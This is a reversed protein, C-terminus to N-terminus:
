TGITFSRRFRLGIFRGLFLQEFEVLIHQEDPTKLFLCPLKVPQTQDAPEAMQVDSLLSDGNAQLRRQCRALVTDDGPVAVVPMHQSIADVGIDDHGLQGSTGGPNRLALAPRHVHKRSAM